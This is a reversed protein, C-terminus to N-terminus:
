KELTLSEEIINVLATVSRNDNICHFAPALSISFCSCSTMQHYKMVPATPRFQVKRTIKSNGIPVGFIQLRKTDDGRFKTQYM